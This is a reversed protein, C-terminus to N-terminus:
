QFDRVVTHATVGRHLTFWVMTIGTGPFFRLM